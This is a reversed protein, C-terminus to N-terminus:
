CTSPATARDQEIQEAILQFATQSEHVTAVCASVFHPHSRRFIEGGQPREDTAKATDKRGYVATPLNAKLIIAFGDLGVDRLRAIIREGDRVLPQFVAL